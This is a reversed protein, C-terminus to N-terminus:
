TEYIYQELIFNYGKNYATLCFVIGHNYKEKIVGDYILHRTMWSNECNPSAAFLAIRPDINQMKSQNIM